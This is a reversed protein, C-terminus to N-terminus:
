LRKNLASVAADEFQCTILINRFKDLLSLLCSRWINECYMIEELHHRGRFYPSLRIFTKQDDKNNVADRLISQRESPTLNELRMCDQERLSLDEEDSISSAKSHSPSLLSDESQYSSGFEVSQESKQTRNQGSSYEAHQVSTRDSPILYVYTHLQTLLRHQLMWIVMQVQRAQQYSTKMPSDLVSLSIPLSFQSLMALLSMNQFRESFKAAVASNSIFTKQDDKNNVADRLISQRESPTLNELRMCDQERLSLDEEDSISSAKSHSPSLLSDESQYSSGFEVSQESKQTRNQGSSYEAHQVSTRDSPILYVYTHLQTLLRHQLMWIVMQVQRAQQYSTKMPSDLVSLSIPLSFQSLMALLSMNQFRESFKAAVASNIYTPAYPSIVYVNSECIPYIITAKGWYLLHGVLQFVHSLMIDADAALQQFNKLPSSVNILRILAPSSDLPLASLLEAPELLLLLGHYPRLYKMCEQICEPEVLLREDQLRHVKNPLCFSLEIWDNIKTYVVGSSKLDEFVVKLHVALESKSLILSFPSEQNEEPMSAVEDHASQMIKAQSTLYNCRCEENRIAISLKHCLDHYCDVVSYSADARLAFVVNFTTITSHERNPLFTPHGIFRVNEIKLEFKQGCLEPKVAFLNSLVKDDFRLLNDTSEYSDEQLIGLEDKHDSPLAYPSVRNEKKVHKKAEKLM